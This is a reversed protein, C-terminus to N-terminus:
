SAAFTFVAPVRAIANWTFHLIMSSEKVGYSKSIWGEEINLQLKDPFTCRAVLTDKKLILVEENQLRVSLGGDLHFYAHVDQINETFLDEIQFQRTFPIYIISRKYPVRKTLEYGCEVRIEGATQTNRLITGNMINKWGFWRKSEFFRWSAPFTSNHAAASRLYDREDDKGLYVSTGTDTLILNGNLYIIPSFLDNHSHSSFGEEGLGFSGARFFCYDSTSSGGNRLIVHGGEKFITCTDAQPNIVQTHASKWEAETLLWFSEENCYHSTNLIKDHFVSGGIGIVGSANGSYNSERLRFGRGDDGDGFQPLRLDPTQLFYLYRISQLLREAYESSFFRNSHVSKVYALLFFDVDFLQYSSSQEKVVGDTFVQSRIEEELIRHAKVIWKESEQFTFSSAAIFLGAAEGILHNTLVIKDVSLHSSLFSTQQWLSRIITTRDSKSLYSEIFQFALTWSILRIGIELPSAWNIGICYPNEDIWDLWQAILDDLYARDGSLYFAQALIIFYQHRNLEWVPKVDSPSGDYLLSIERYVVKRWERKTTPDLHWNIKKDFRNTLGLFEFEHRRLKQASALLSLFPSPFEKKFRTATSAELPLVGTFGISEIMQATQTHTNFDKEFLSRFSKVAVITLFRRLGAKRIAQICFRVINM